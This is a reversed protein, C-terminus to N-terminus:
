EVDEYAKDDLFELAVVFHLLDHKEVGQSM